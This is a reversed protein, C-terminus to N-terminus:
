SNMIIAKVPCIDVIDDQLEEDNIAEYNIIVDGEQDLSFINPYKETCKYCKVCAKSMISLGEESSAQKIMDEPKVIKDIIRSMLYIALVTLIWRLAMFEAGLFRAEVVLMPVKVVAWASLIAAANSVSAGKKLLMIVLPFAAYIPGASISGVLLSLLFGLFGSGKGLYKYILEKPVWVDIALTLAVIVPMVTIMEKIFYGSGMIGELAVDRNVLFTIAYAFLVVIFIPKIKKM